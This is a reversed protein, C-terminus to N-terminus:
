TELVASRMQRHRRYTALSRQQCYCGLSWIALKDIYCSLRCVFVEGRLVPLINHIDYILHRVLLITSSVNHSAHDLPQRM